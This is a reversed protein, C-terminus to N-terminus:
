AVDERVEALAERLIRAAAEPPLPNLYVGLGLEMGGPRKLTDADKHLPVLEIRLHHSIDGKPAQMVNILYPPTKGGYTLRCLRLGTHLLGATSTMEAPSLSALDPRHETPTIVMEFPLRAWPPAWLRAHGTVVVDLDPRDIEACAVCRRREAGLTLRRPVFPLGVLQGHPHAVTPGFHDGVSEFAFVAKVSSNRFLETTKRATLELFRLTIEAPLDGLRHAHSRGYVIVWHLPEAGGPGHAAAPTM